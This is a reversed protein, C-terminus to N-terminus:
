VNVEEHDASVACSILFPPVVGQAFVEFYRVLNQVFYQVSNQVCYQLRNNCPFNLCLFPCGRTCIDSIIGFTCLTACKAISQSCKGWISERLIPRIAAENQDEQQIIM